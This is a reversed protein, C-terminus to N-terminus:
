IIFTFLRTYTYLVLVYIINDSNQVEQVKSERVSQVNIMKGINKKQNARMNCYWVKQKPHGVMSTLKFVYYLFICIESRLYDSIPEHPFQNSSPCCSINKLMTKHQTNLHTDNM